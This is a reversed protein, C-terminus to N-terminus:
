ANGAEPSGHVNDETSKKDIEEIKDKSDVNCIQQSDEQVRDLEGDKKAGFIREYNRDYRAKNVPRYVSGKSM